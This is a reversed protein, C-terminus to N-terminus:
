EKVVGRLYIPELVASRIWHPSDAEMYIYDRARPVVRETPLPLIEASAAVDVKEMEAQLNERSCLYPGKALYGKNFITCYFEGRRADAFVGLSDVDRLQMGISAASCVGVIEVAQVTALAQAAALAVRIGSFSGPGVGVVIRGLKLHDLGLPRLAEFLVTSPRKGAEFEKSQVVMQGNGLAISGVSSSTELVLTLM